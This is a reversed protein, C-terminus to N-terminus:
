LNRITRATININAYSNTVHQDSTARTARTTASLRSSSLIRFINNLWGGTKWFGLRNRLYFNGVCNNLYTETFVVSTIVISTANVTNLWFTSDTSLRDCHRTVTASVNTGVLIVTSKFTELFRSFKRVCVRGARTTWCCNTSVVKSITCDSVASNESAQQRILEVDRSGILKKSGLAKFFLFHLLCAFDSWQRM